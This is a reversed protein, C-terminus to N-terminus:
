FCGFKGEQIGMRQAIVAGHVLSLYLRDRDRREARRLFFRCGRGPVYEAKDFLLAIAIAVNRDHDRIKFTHSFEKRMGKERRTDGGM